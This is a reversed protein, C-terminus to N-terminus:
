YMRFNALCNFDRISNFFSLPIQLRRLLWFMNSTCAPFCGNLDIYVHIPLPSYLHLPFFNTERWEATSRAQEEMESQVQLSLPTAVLIFLLKHFRWSEGPGWLTPRGNKHNNDGTSEEGYIQMTKRNPTRDAIAAQRRKVIAVKM